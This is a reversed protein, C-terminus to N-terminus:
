GIEKYLIKGMGTKILGRLLKIKKAQHDNSPQHHTQLIVTM